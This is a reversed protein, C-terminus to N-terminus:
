NRRIVYFRAPGGGTINDTFSTTDGGSNWSDVLEVWETAPDGTLDTSTYISYTEGPGSDWTLTVTNNDRDVSVDTVKIEPSAVLDFASGGAALLDIQEETLARSFLAFDDMVGQLSNATGGGANSGIFLETFDTALPNAGIQDILLDGDIWIETTDGRKVFTYHHWQTFDVEPAPSSIRTTPAGAGGFDFYITGDSWPVHAQLGRRENPSVPSVFWFSSTSAINANRQWFSITVEDFLAIENLFSVDPVRVRQGASDVGFDMGYDGANGSRGGADATYAAGGIIEGALGSASDLAFASDDVDNFEWYALLALPDPDPISAIDSPNSGREVEFLDSFGDGDTDPSLPNSVIPGNVEEGDTRGDGDTDPNSANTGAAVEGSDDLGDEDADPDLPDTGFLLYEDPSTLGDGDDDGDTLDDLNGVLDIEVLDPIGDGDTDPFSTVPGPNEIRIYLETYPIAHNENAFEWLFTDPDNADVGTIAQGYSFGRQNGHGNWAWTFIRDGGNASVQSDRSNALLNVGVSSAPLGGTDVVELEVEFGAPDFGFNNTWTTRVTPRWRAESFVTGEVNAARRIRIEVGTLDAGANTILSQITEERYMAPTFAASTGLLDPDGVEDLSGQGDADFEWGNRGRGVLLWSQAGDRHVYAEFVVGGALFKYTGTPLVSITNLDEIADPRSNPDSPNTNEAVEVGDNAGDDDTDILLPNSGIINVEEGDTLGDSDTDTLAPNTGATVEGGDNLGDGDSDPDNPDTGIDFEDSNLLGDSDLDDSDAVEPNLGERVEYWNPLGDGDNDDRNLHVVMGQLIPSGDGGPFARGGIQQQLAINLVGDESVAFEGRYFFSNNPTWVQPPDATSGESSYDDVALQGEVSIDFRRDRDAGENTLLQVDYVGGPYLGSVDVTVPNPANMWRIDRMIEGLNAASDGAGGSFAPATGVWDNIFNAATTVATVINEQAIGGGPTQGDTRFVVGNVERDMDGYLDVAIVANDPDLYLDDPSTFEGVEGTFVITGAPFVDTADNPDSGLTLEESDSSGDGDTDSSTPNTGHTNIEESDSLGDGDTDSNAPSTNAVLVQGRIEGGTFNATHVNLYWDGALLNAEAPDGIMVGTASQSSAWPGPVGLDVGGSVGPAGVHFHMNTVAATLNEWTLTYDLTNSRSDYVGSIRGTGDGAGPVGPDFAGFGGNTGAQLADMPGSLFYVGVEDGDSLGDGDSDEVLPDSLFINIEDPSSLGDGDDDGSTLDDLNGVLSEEILDFIGDSDTDPLTVPTPNELRIYVEAYPIAHNENTNEWWFTTPNNAGDTVVNGYNFGQRFAHSNWDWTFIRAFNNPAAGGTTTDRTNTIVPTLPSGIGSLIEYEVEYGSGADFDGTWSTQTLPRWRAEQYPATGTSDGARRIRIEVGTLDAGGNTIIENIIADSYLAPVFADPTELISENGVDAPIGQGDNDFEWGDRGRGVLLWSHTGDNQVYADFTEGAVSFPYTGTPLVSVSNLDDLTQAWAVPAAAVCMQAVLLAQRSLSFRSPPNKMMRNHVTPIDSRLPIGLLFPEDRSTHPLWAAEAKGAPTMRGAKGGAGGHVSEVTGPRASLNKRGTLNTKTM